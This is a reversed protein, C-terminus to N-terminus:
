CKALRTCVGLSSGSMEVLSVSIRTHTKDLILKKSARTPTYWGAKYYIPKLGGQGALQKKELGCLVRKVDGQDAFDQTYVCVVRERRSGDDTAVKADIGLEGSLTGAVVLAWVRDVEEQSVFLMWKGTKIGCEQAKALIEDSAQEQVSKCGKAVQSPGEHYSKNDVSDKQKSLVELIKEGAQRFSAYDEKVETNPALPNACWIWPGTTEAKSQSPPLRELFDSIDEGLQWASRENAHRNFGQGRAENKAPENELKRVAIEIFTQPRNLFESPNFDRCERELREKENDSGLDSILAPLTQSTCHVM